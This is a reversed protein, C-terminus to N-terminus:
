IGPERTVTDLSRARGSRIGQIGAVIKRLEEASVNEDDYALHALRFIVQDPTERPHIKLGVLLAKTEQRVRVTTTEM